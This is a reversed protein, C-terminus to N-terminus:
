RGGEAPAAPPVAPAPASMAVGRERGLRQLYSILAVIESDWRAEVGAVKLDEVVTSAQAKQAEAAGDIEANSYPVGLKQMVALWQGDQSDAELYVDAGYIAQYETKLQSLIAAYDPYHFGSADVTILDSLAM